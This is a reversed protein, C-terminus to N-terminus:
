FVWAVKDEPQKEHLGIRLGTALFRLPDLHDMLRACPAAVKTESALVQALVTVLIWLPTSRCM